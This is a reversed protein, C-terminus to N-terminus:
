SLVVLLVVPLLELQYLQLLRNFLVILFENIDVNILKYIVQANAIALANSTTTTAAAVANTASTASNIIVITCNTCTIITTGIAASVFVLSSSVNIGQALLTDILSLNSDTSYFAVYVSGAYCSMGGIKLGYSAMYNYVSAKIEAPNISSYSGNFKIIYDPQTSSDYSIAVTKEKIQISNSYCQSSYENGSTAVIISLLYMGAKTIALNSFVAYGTSTDFTVTANSTVLSGKAPYYGLTYM